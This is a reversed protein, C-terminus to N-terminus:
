KESSGEKRLKDVLAGFALVQTKTNLKVQLSKGTTITLTIQDSGEKTFTKRAAAAALKDEKPALPVVRKVALEGGLIKGTAPETKVASKIAALADVGFTVFVADSRFALYGPGEGMTRKFNADTDRPIVKHISVDGEKAFDLEIADRETKGLTPVIKKVAKEIATGDKVAAGLVLTYKDDKGPGRLDFGIDLIGAKLTPKVAELLAEAQERKKEDKEKALGETIGDDIVPAMAKRIREPLTLHLFANMVSEARVLSTGVSKSPTLAAIDDALKSGNQPTLNVSVAFDHSNRDLDLRLSLTASSQLVAKAQDGLEDLVSDHLSKQAKSGTPPAKEKADALQKSLFVLAMDRYTKPIRDLHATVAVISGAGESLVDEPKPLKAKDLADASTDNLKVTGYLYGNGFRFIVPFPVGEPSVTYIGDDGKEAKLSVKELMALFDKEDAIPLLLVVQSKPLDKAVVGYIGLPKKPDLGEIGKPGTREKLMAEFQKLEEERGALAALYRLDAVLGDIAKVRVVLSPKDAPEAAPAPRVTAGLAVLALCLVLRDRMLSEKEPFLADV